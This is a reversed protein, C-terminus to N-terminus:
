EQAREALAVAAEATGSLPMAPSTVAHPLVVPLLMRREAHQSVLVVQVIVGAIVIGAMLVFPAQLAVLDSNGQRRSFAAAAGFVMPMMQALGVTAEHFTTGTRSSSFCETAAVISSQFGLAAVVGCLVAAPLLMYMQTSYAFTLNAAVLCLGICVYTRRMGLLREYLAGASFVCLQGLLMAAALLGMRDAHFFNLKNLEAYTVRLGVGTALVSMNAIVAAVLLAAPLFTRRAGSAALVVIHASKNTGPPFMAFVFSIGLSCVGTLITQRLFGDRILYGAIFMGTASGSTWAVNYFRLITGKHISEGEFDLMWASAFPWFAGSSLGLLVQAVMCEGPTKAFALLSAASASGALGICVVYKGPLRRFIQNLALCSVAYGLPNVAGLIGLQESSMQLSLGLQPGAILILGGCTGYCFVVAFLAYLQRL